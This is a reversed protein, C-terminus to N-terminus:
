VRAKVCLMRELGCGDGKECAFREMWRKGGVGCMSIECVRTRVM